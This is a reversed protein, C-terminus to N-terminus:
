KDSNKSIQKFQKFYDESNRYLINLNALQKELNWNEPMDSKCKFNAGAEFWKERLYAHSVQYDDFGFECDCCPCVDYSNLKEFTENDIAPEDLYDFGCVPCINGTPLPQYVLYTNENVAQQALQKLKTYIEIAVSKADSNEVYRHFILKDAIENIAELNNLTKDCSNFMYLADAQNFKKIGYGLMYKLYDKDSNFEWEEHQRKEWLFIFLDKDFKYKNEMNNELYIEIYNM